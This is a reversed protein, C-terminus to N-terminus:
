DAAVPREAVANRPTLAVLVAAAIFLAPVDAVLHGHEQPRSLAQVTMISAHVISSWVAFWIISLNRLPDRAAVLLFVGLTFYLGVMMQEYLPQHPEWRWGSPWFLMLPGLAICVCGLVLLAARLARLRHVTM